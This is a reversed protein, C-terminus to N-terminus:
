ESITRVASSAPGGQGDSVTLRTIELQEYYRQVLEINKPLQTSQASKLAANLEEQLKKRDRETIASDSILRELEKQIAVQPDTFVKTQPDIAALVGSITAAVAQYETLSKFGHRKARAKLQAQYKAQDQKSLARGSLNEVLESMDKQVAIFGVVQKETLNIQADVVQAQSPSLVSLAMAVIIGYV